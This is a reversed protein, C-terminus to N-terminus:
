RKKTTQDKNSDSLRVIIYIFDNFLCITTLGDRPQYSAFLPIKRCCNITESVSYNVTVERNRALLFISFSVLINLFFWFLYLFHSNWLTACPIFCIMLIYIILRRISILSPPTGAFVAGIVIFQTLRHCSRLWVFMKIWLKGWMDPTTTLKNLDRTLDLIWITLEQLLLQM